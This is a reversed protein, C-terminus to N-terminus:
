RCALTVSARAEGSTTRWSYAIATSATSASRLTQPPEIRLGSSIRSRAASTMPRNRSDNRDNRRTWASRAPANVEGPNTANKSCM